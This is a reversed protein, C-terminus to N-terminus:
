WVDLLEACRARVTPDRVLLQGVIRRVPELTALAEGTVEPEEDEDVEHGDHGDSSSPPSPSAPWEVHCALVRKVWSRREGDRRERERAPAYRPLRDELEPPPNFPLARSALAYLVVGLSWADTERGDYAGERRAQHRGSASSGAGIRSVRHRGGDTPARSLHPGIRLLDEDEDDSMASALLLEPAAYSESGCRTRLWPDAPDIARALGFDTLKLMPQSPDPLPESGFRATLLINELKIDRHVVNRLERWMRRLVSLDLLLVDSSTRSFAAHLTPLAAHSASSLHRLVDLHRATRRALVKVAVIEGVHSFAGQGIESDLEWASDSPAGSGSAATEEHQIQRPPPPSIPAFEASSPSTTLTGDPAEDLEVFTRRPSHTLSEAHALLSSDERQTTYRSPFLRALPPLTSKPKPTVDDQPGPRFPGDHTLSIQSSLSANSPVSRLSAPPTPRPSVTSFFDETLSRGSSSAPPAPAPASPTSFFSNTKSSPTALSGASALSVHADEPTEVSSVSDTRSSISNNSPVSRLSPPPTPRAFPASFFDA